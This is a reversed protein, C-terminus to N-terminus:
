ELIKWKIERNKRVYELATTAKMLAKRPNEAIGIGTKVNDNLNAITLMSDLDKKSAFLGVNDGGFYYAIGGVKESLSFVNAKLEEIEQMATRKDLRTIGNIDYHAVVIKDDPKDELTDVCNFISEYITEGYGKCIQMKTPSYKESVERIVHLVEKEKVGDVLIIYSDYRIPIPFANVDALKSYLISAFYHQFAQIRWERDCGLSETWEKYGVLDLIITKM